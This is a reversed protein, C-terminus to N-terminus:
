KSIEKDILEVPQTPLELAVGQAKASALLAQVVNEYNAKLEAVRKQYMIEQQNYLYQNSKLGYMFDDYATLMARSEAILQREDKLKLGRLKKYVADCLSRYPNYYISYGGCAALTDGLAKYNSNFDFRNLKNLNEEFEAAVIGYNSSTGSLVTDIFIKKFGIRKALEERYLCEYIFDNADGDTMQWAAVDMLWMEYGGDTKDNWREELKAGADTYYYDQNEWSVDPFLNSIIGIEEGSSMACIADYIDQATQYKPTGSDYIDGNM